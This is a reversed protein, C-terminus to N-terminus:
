EATSFSGFTGALTLAQEFRRLLRESAKACAVPAPKDFALTNTSNFGNNKRYAM